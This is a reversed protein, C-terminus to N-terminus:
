SEELPDYAHREEHGEALACQTPGWPSPSVFQCRKETDADARAIRAASEFAAVRGRVTENTLMTRLVVRDRDSMGEIALAIREREDARADAAIRADHAALWTRSLQDAWAECTPRAPGDHICLPLERHFWAALEERDGM